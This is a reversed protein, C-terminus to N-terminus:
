EVISTIDLTIEKDDPDYISLTADGIVYDIDGAYGPYDYTAPEAGSVTANGHGELHLYYGEEELEADVDFDQSGDEYEIGYRDSSFDCYYDSPGSEEAENAFQEQIWSIVDRPNWPSGALAKRLAEMTQDKKASYDELVFKTSQM